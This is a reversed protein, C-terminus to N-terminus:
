QRDAYQLLIDPSVAVIVHVPGEPDEGVPSVRVAEELFGRAVVGALDRPGAAEGEALVRHVAREGEGM